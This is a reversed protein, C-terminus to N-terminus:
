LMYFVNSADHRRKEDNRLRTRKKNRFDSAKFFFKAKPLQMVLFCLLPFRSVNYDSLNEAKLDHRTKRYPFFFFDRPSVLVAPNAYSFDGPSNVTMACLLSFFYLFPRTHNKFRPFARRYTAHLSLYKTVKSPRTKPSSFSAVM